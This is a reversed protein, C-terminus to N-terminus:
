SSFLIPKRRFLIINQQKVGKKCIKKIKSLTLGRHLLKLKNKRVMRAALCWKAGKEKKVGLRRGEINKDSRGGHNKDNGIEEVVIM